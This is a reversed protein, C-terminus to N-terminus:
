VCCWADLLWCWTLTKFDHTKTGLLFGITQEQKPSKKGAACRRCWCSGKRIEPHQLGEGEGVTAGCVM